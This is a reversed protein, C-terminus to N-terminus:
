QNQPPAPRIQISAATVSGDQNATGTVAVQEGPALDSAAGTVTKAIQTQEGFFVITSGGDRLKVTVSTDDQAIVEGTIFGGGATTRMGRTGGMQQFRAQREEPSLDRFNQGNGPVASQSKKQAYQMGGGFAGAGVIVMAVIGGVIMKNM